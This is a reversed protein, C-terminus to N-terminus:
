RNKYGSKNVKIAKQSDPGELIESGFFYERRLIKDSQLNRFHTKEGL